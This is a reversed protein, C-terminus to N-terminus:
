DIEPRHRAYLRSVSEVIADHTKDGSPKAKPLKKRSRGGMKKGKTQNNRQNRNDTSGRSPRQYFCSTLFWRTAGRTGITTDSAHSSNSRLSLRVSSLAFSTARRTRSGATSASR